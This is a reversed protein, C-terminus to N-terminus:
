LQVWISVIPKLPNIPRKADTASQTHELM